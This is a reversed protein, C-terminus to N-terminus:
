KCRSPCFRIPGMPRLWMLSLALDNVPANGKGFELLGLSYSVGSASLYTRQKNGVLNRIFCETGQLWYILEM